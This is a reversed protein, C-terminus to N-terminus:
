KVMSVKTLKNELVLNVLNAIKFIDIGDKYNNMKSPFRGPEILSITVKKQDNVTKRNFHKNFNDLSEKAINYSLRQNDIGPYSAWYSSASGINIIHGNTMKEYFKSTLYVTSVYNVLLNNWIDDTLCGVTNILVTPNFKSVLQDCDEKTSFDYESRGVIIAEPINKQIETALDSKGLILIM